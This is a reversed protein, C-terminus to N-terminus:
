EKKIKFYASSSTQREGKLFYQTVSWTYTQGPGFLSAEVKTSYESPNLKKAFILNEDSMVEGKFLRFELRERAILDESYLAWKFELFPRGKLDVEESRPFLLEPRSVSRLMAKLRPDDQDEAFVMRGCFVFVLALGLITIREKRVNM